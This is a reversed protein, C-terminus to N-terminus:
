QNEGYVIPAVSDEIFYSTRDYKMSSQEGYILNESNVPVDIFSNEIIRMLQESYSM